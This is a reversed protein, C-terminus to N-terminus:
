KKKTYTNLTYRQSQCQHNICMAYKDYYKFDIKLFLNNEQTHTSLGEAMDSEKRGWPSYGVLSGQGHSKEPLFVPTTKWARM